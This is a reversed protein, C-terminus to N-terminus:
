IFAAEQADPHLGDIASATLEFDQCHAGVIHRSCNLFISEIPIQPIGVLSGARAGRSTGQIKLPNRPRLGGIVM